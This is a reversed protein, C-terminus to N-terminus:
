FKYQRLKISIEDIDGFRLDTAVLQKFRISVVHSERRQKEQKQHAPGGDYRAFGGFLAACLRFVGCPGV